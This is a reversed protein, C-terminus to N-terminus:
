VMRRSRWLYYVYLYKEPGCKIVRATIVSNFRIYGGSCVLFVQMLLLRSASFTLNGTRSIRRREKNWDVNRRRKYYQECFLFVKRRMPGLIRSETKRIEVTLKSIKFAFSIPDNRGTKLKKKKRRCTKRRM